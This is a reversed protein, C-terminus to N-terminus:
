KGRVTIGAKQILAKWRPLEDVIRKRFADTGAGSAFFGAKLMSARVDDRKTVALLAKALTDIADKPTGKPVVIGQWTEVVAQPLGAEVISPVNPLDPWRESGSVALGRLKGAEIQPKGVAVSVAAIDVHGGLLAAAAPAASPFPVHVINVDAQLKLLEFGFHALTGAGPSSYNLKGPQKKARAILDKLANMGSDTRVTYLIPFKAVEAVPEFDKIPDYPVKGYLSPNVVFGSAALLISYGDPKQRAAHGTGVSGGAGGRNEIIVTQKLAESLPAQIVRALVDNAGGPGFPVILTIPREPYAALSATASIAGLGIALAAITCRLYPRSPTM